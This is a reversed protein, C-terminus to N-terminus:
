KLDIVKTIEKLYEEEDEIYKSLEEPGMYKIPLDANAAKELHEDSEIAEKFADHLIDIIEKTTCKPSVLAIASVFLIDYGKEKM